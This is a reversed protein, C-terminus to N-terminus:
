AAAQKAAGPGYQNDGKNGPLVAWALMALLGVFPVALAAAAWGTVGIDHSRRSSAAVWPVCVLGVWLWYLGMTVLDEGELAYTLEPMLLMPASSAVMVVLTALLWHLRGSRGRFTLVSKLYDM